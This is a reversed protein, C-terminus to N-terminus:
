NRSGNGNHLDSARDLIHRSFQELTMIVPTLLRSDYGLKTAAVRVRLLKFVAEDLELRLAGVDIARDHDESM